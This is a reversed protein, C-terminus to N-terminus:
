YEISSVLNAIKPFLNAAVKNAEQINPIGDPWYLEKFYKGPDSFLNGLAEFYFHVSNSPVHIIVGNLLVPDGPKISIIGALELFRYLFPSKLYLYRSLILHVADEPLEGIRPAQTINSIVSSDAINKIGAFLPMVNGIAAMLEPLSDPPNEIVDKIGDLSNIIGGISTIFGNENGGLVSNIDWGCEDFLQIIEQPDGGTDVIPKFFDIVEQFIIEQFNNDM